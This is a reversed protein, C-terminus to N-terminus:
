VRPFFRGTRKMYDLYADGFRLILNKEETRTRIVLLLVVMLGSAFLFLNASALSNGLFALLAAVYLPHRVWRYPGKVVLNHNRRTVVTDTLNRGLSHFTWLLLGGALLALGIGAWRLCTPLRVASWTMWAPDILYAVFSGMAALGFLRLMIMIVVGERMRDLKEDTRSRLRYYLGIPLLIVFGTLLLNRFRLDESM